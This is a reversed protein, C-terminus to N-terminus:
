PVRNPDYTMAYAHRMCYDYAFDYRRFRTTYSRQTVRAARAVFTAYSPRLCFDLDARILNKVGLEWTKRGGYFADKGYELQPYSM